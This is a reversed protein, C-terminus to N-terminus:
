ESLAESVRTAPAYDQAARLTASRTGDPQHELHLLCARPWDPALRDPWEILCLANGVAEDLGLEGLEQPDSLRYLDSHWVEGREAGYTQILTFTPSPVPTEPQGSWARILARAIHTKGAGLAGSLLLTDGPALADSLRAALADSAAEDPLSVRAVIPWDPLIPADDEPLSVPNSVSM